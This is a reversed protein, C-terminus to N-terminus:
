GKKNQANLENPQVQDLVQFFEATKTIVAAWALRGKRSNRNLNMKVWRKRAKILSHLAKDALFVTSEPEAKPYPSFLLDQMLGTSWGVLPDTCRPPPKGYNIHKPGSATIEDEDEGEAQAEATENDDEEDDEKDDEDDDDDDEDEIDAGGMGASSYDAPGSPIPSVSSRRAKRAAIEDEDMKTLSEIDLPLRELDDDFLGEEWFESNEFEEEPIPDPKWDGFVAEPVPEYEKKPKKVVISPATSHVTTPPLAPLPVDDFGGFEEKAAPPEAADFGTFAEKAPPPEDFGSFEDKTSPAPPEEFGAFEDLESDRKKKKNKKKKIPAREPIPPPPDIEM